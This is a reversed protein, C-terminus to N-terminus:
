LLLWLNCKLSNYDIENHGSRQGGRIKSVTLGVLQWIWFYKFFQILSMKSITAVRSERRCNQVSNTSFVIKVKQCRTVKPWPWKFHFRDIINLWEMFKMFIQDTPDIRRWQLKNWRCLIIIIIIFTIMIMIIRCIHPATVHGYTYNKLLGTRQCVSLCVSVLSFMDDRASTFFLFHLKNNYSQVVRVCCQVGSFNFSEIFYDAVVHANRLKVPFVAHHHFSNVPRFKLLTM